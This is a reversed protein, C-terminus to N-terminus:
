QGGVFDRYAAIGARLSIKAKWGATLLHTSHLFKSPSGDPKSPNTRIGYAIGVTRCVLATLDTITIDGGLGVNVHKEGSYNALLRSCARAPALDNLYLLERRSIGTGWIEIPHSGDLKAVHAKRILAPLVHRKKPHYNDSLGYFNTPMASISDCGYQRRYANCREIGAMKAITYWGNTPEWPGALLSIGPNAPTGDVNVCALKQTQSM